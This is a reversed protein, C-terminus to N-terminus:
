KIGENNKNEIRFKMVKNDPTYQLSVFSCPSDDFVISLKEIEEQLEQFNNFIISVEKM